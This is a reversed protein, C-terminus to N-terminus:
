LYCIVIVKNTKSWNRLGACNQHNFLYLDGINDSFSRQCVLNFTNSDFIDTWKRQWCKRISDFSFKCKRKADAPSKRLLKKKKTKLLSSLSDFVYNTMPCVVSFCTFSTTIDTWKQKVCNTLARGWFVSSLRCADLVAIRFTQTYFQSITIM